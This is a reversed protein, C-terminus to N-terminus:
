QFKKASYQGIFYAILIPIISFAIHKNLVNFENLAIFLGTAIIIFSLDFIRKSSKM